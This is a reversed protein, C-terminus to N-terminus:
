AGTAPTRDLGLADLIRGDGLTSAEIEAEFEEAQASPVAVLFIGAARAATAGLSSDEFAVAVAPDVALRRCAELYVAPDPKPSAVEDASVVHAFHDRLGAGRLAADVVAAPANSAVALPLRGSLAALLGEAGPLPRLPGATIADELARRLSGAPVEHGLVDGLREAAIGVSAGNLSECLAAFRESSLAVGAEAVAARYAAEWCHQTDVLLGDCDFIAGRWRSPM